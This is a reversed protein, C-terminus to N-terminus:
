RARMECFRMSVRATRLKNNKRETPQARLVCENMHSGRSEGENQSSERERERETEHLLAVVRGDLHVARAAKVQPLAFEVVIVDRAAIVVRELHDFVYVLFLAYILLHFLLRSFPAADHLSCCSALLNPCITRGDCIRSM